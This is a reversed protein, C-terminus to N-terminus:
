YLTSGDKAKITGFKTPQHSALYPYYPHGPRIANENIWELRKGNTDALYVQTPQGANSRSIIFRSAAGDMSASNTWGRETLRTLVDPRAIDVAYLHQELVDDKLGTFYIRGKAEDVGVLGTM